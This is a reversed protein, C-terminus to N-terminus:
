GGAEDAATHDDDVVHGIVLLLAMQDDKFLKQSSATSFLVFAFKRKFCVPLQMREPVPACSPYVRWSM